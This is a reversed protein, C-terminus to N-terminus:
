TATLPVLRSHSDTTTCNYFVLNCNLPSISFPLGIKSATNATPVSCSGESGNSFDALMQIDSIVFSANVYFIELVRFASVYGPEYFGLYPNGTCHMQFGFQVCGNESAGSVIGSPASVTVNSCREPLCVDAQVGSDPPPLDWALLFGDNIFQEYDSPNVEGPTGLVPVSSSICGELYYVKYNESSNYRGGFRVFANSENGCRIGVVTPDRHAAAVAAATTCNYFVLNLNGPQIKFPHGLKASTKWTPVHCTNFSNLLELKGQDVVHLIREEYLIELIAFDFEIGYPVSSRLFPTSNLCTVEFDISGCLSEVNDSIWFPDSIVLNGCRTAPCVEAQKDAMSVALMLPLWWKSCFFLCNPAMSSCLNPITAALFLLTCVPGPTREWTLLFGDHILKEYNSSNVEGSTVLVPLFISICGELYYRDYNGSGGSLGGLRAFMNGCKTSMFALEQGAPAKAATCNYLVLNLNAPSIRLSLGLKVSTNRSSVQCSNSAQLLGLKGLDVVRLSGENYSIDIIGFGIGFPKYSRLVPTNNYCTVEFDPSGCSRGTQLDTLWFPDSITLNGCRKASGPCGELVQQYATAVVVM